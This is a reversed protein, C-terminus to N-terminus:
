FAYTQTKHRLIECVKGSVLVTTFNTEMNLNLKRWKEGNIKPWFKDFDLLKVVQTM